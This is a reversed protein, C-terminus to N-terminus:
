TPVGEDHIAEPEEPVTPPALRKRLPLKGKVRGANAPGRADARAAECLLPLAASSAVGGLLRAAQGAM